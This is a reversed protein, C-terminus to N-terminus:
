KILRAFPLKRVTKYITVETNQFDGDKPKKVPKNTRLDRYNTTQRLLKGNRAFYFNRQVIMDGYFTRLESELKALTGDARFYHYDYQAWDGSPSFLTFNSRVLKGRQLWNFAIAYTERTETRFKELAKESGFKQWTSQGDDNYDSTDAFILHPAKAKKIMAELTKVYADIRRIEATKGRQAAVPLITLLFVLVFLIARRKIM